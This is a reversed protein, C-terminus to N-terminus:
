QRSGRGRVHWRPWRAPWRGTWGRLASAVTGLGAPQQPPLGRSWSCPMASHRQSRVHRYSGDQWLYIAHKPSSRASQLGCIDYLQEERQVRALSRRRRRPKDVRYVVCAVRCQMPSGEIPMELADLQQDFGTGVDGDDVSGAM